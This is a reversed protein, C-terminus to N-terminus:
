KKRLFFYFAFSRNGGSYHAQRMGSIMVMSRYLLITGKKEEKVHIRESRRYRFCVPQPEAFGWTTFVEELLLMPQEYCMMRHHEAVLGHATRVM